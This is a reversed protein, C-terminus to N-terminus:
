PVEPVSKEVFEDLMKKLELDMTQSKCKDRLLCVSCEEADPEWHLFCSGMRPARDDTADM